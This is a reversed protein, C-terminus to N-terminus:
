FTSPWRVQRERCVIPQPFQVTLNSIWSPVSIETRYLSARRLIQESRVCSTNSGDLLEWLGDVRTEDTFHIVAIHSSLVNASLYYYYKVFPYGVM